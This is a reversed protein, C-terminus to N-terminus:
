AVRVEMRPGKSAMLPLGGISTLSGDVDAERDMGWARALSPLLEGLRHLSASRPRIDLHKTTHLRSCYISSKAGTTPAVLIRVEAVRGATELSWRLLFAVSRPNTRSAAHRQVLTM